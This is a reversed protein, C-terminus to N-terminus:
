DCNPVGMWCPYQDVVFHVVLTATFVFLLASVLLNVPSGLLGRGSRADRYLPVFSIILGVPLLFLTSLLLVRGFLSLQPESGAETTMRVFFGRLPEIGSIEVFLILALPVALALGIFANVKKSNMNTSGTKIEIAREKVIGGFTEIFVWFLFSFTIRGGAQRRENLLDNFTQEASEGFRLLFEKPYFALVRRYLRRITTLDFM